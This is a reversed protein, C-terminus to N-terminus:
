KLSKRTKQQWALNIAYEITSANSIGELEAIYRMKDHAAESISVNLLKNKGKKKKERSKQTSLANKFKKVFLEKEANSTTIWTYWTFYSAYCFALKEDISEGCM